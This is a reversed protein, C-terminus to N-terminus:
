VDELWQKARKAINGAVLRESATRSPHRLFDEAMVMIERVASMDKPDIRVYKGNTCRHLYNRITDADDMAGSLQLGYRSELWGYSIRFPERSHGDPSAFVWAM